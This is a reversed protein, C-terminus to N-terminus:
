FVGKLKRKFGDKLKRKFREDGMILRANKMVLSEDKQKEHWRKIGEAGEVMYVVNFAFVLDGPMAQAEIEQEKQRLLKRRRLYGLIM